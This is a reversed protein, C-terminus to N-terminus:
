GGQDRPDTDPGGFGAETTERALAPVEQAVRQPERASRGDAVVLLLKSIRDSIAEYAQVPSKARYVSGVECPRTLKSTKCASM